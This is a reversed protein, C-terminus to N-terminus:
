SQDSAKDPTHKEQKLNMSHDEKEDHRDYKEHDHQQDHDHPGDRDFRWFCSSTLLLMGCLIYPLISFCFNRINATGLTKKLTCLLLKTKM